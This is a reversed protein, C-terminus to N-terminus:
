EPAFAANKVQLDLMIVFFGCSKWLLLFSKRYPDRGSVPNVCRQTFRRKTRHFVDCFRSRTRGLFSKRYPYFSKRYPIFAVKPVSDPFFHWFIRDRFAVKPVFFPASFRGKTRLLFSRRYPWFRGRTRNFRGGTRDLFSKEYPRLLKLFSTQYPPSRGPLAAPFHINTYFRRKTRHHAFVVNLVTFFWVFRLIVGFFL